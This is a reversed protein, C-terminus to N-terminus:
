LWHPYTYKLNEHGSFPDKFDIGKNQIIHEGIKITYFTDNQLSKPTISISFIAILLVAMINFIIKKNKM